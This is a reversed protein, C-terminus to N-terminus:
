GTGEKRTANTAERPKSWGWIRERSTTSNLPPLDLIPEDYGKGDLKGTLLYKHGGGLFGFFEDFGRDMPTFGNGEGLHWKGVMSTTYGAARMVDPLTKVAAPLPGDLDEIGCRHQYRGSMLAARTPTCFSGNSYAATFRCGERAIRDIAPTPIDACDHVGIDGYGLDDALIIVVNPREAAIATSLSCIALLCIWFRRFCLSMSDENAVPFFM